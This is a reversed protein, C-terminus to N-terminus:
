GLLPLKVNKESTISIMTKKTRQMFINEVYYLTYLKNHTRINNRKV